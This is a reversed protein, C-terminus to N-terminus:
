LYPESDLCHLPVFCDRFLQRFTQPSPAPFDSTSIGGATPPPSPTLSFETALGPTPDKPSPPRNLRAAIVHPTRGASAGARWSPTPPGWSRSRLNVAFTLSSPSRARLGFQSPRPETPAGPTTPMANRRPGMATAVTSSACGPVPLGSPASPSTTRSGGQHCTRTIRIGRAPGPLAWTCSNTTLLKSLILGRRDSPLVPPQPASAPPCTSCSSTTNYLSLSLLTVYLRNLLTIFGNSVLPSIYGTEFSDLSKESQCRLVQLPNLTFQASHTPSMKDSVM